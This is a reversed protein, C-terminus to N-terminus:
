QSEVNVISRIQKLQKITENIRKQTEETNLAKELWSKQNKPYFGHKELSRRVADKVFESRSTFAFEESDILEDILKALATPIHITTYKTAENKVNM